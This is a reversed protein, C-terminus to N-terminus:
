KHLPVVPVPPGAPRPAPGVIRRLIMGESLWIGAMGLPSGKMQWTATATTGEATVRLSGLVAAVPERVPAPLFAQGQVYRAANQMNTQVAQAAQAVAQADQGQAKLTYDLHDGAATASLVASAFVGVNRDFVYRPNIDVVGWVPCNTDVARILAVMRANQQLGGHRSTLASTLEGVPRPMNRPGTLVVLRKGDACIVTLDGGGVELVAWSGVKRITTRGLGQLVGVLTKPDYQGRLIAVAGKQPDANVGLTLCDLEFNGTRHALDIIDQAIENAEEEMAQPATGVIGAVRAMVQHPDVTGGAPLSIQLVLGVNQPLLWVDKRRDRADLAPRQYPQGGIAALAAAAYRAEFPQKSHLLGQLVQAARPDKLEGLTRIAMLRRVTMEQREEALDRLISQARVMVEPDKSKAAEELQPLAAAGMKRLEEAARERVEFSDSALDQIQHTVEQVPLRAALERRMAEVTMPVGALQWYARTPIYDLLQNGAPGAGGLLAMMLIGIYSYAM